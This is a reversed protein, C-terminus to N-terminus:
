YQCFRDEAIREKLKRSSRLWLLLEIYHGLAWKQLRCRWRLLGWQIGTVHELEVLSRWQPTEPVGMGPNGLRFEHNKEEFQNNVM